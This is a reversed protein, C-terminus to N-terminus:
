RSIKIPPAIAENDAPLADRAGLVSAVARFTVKGVHADDGTFIYSFSFPTTGNKPNMPVFQTLSAFQQFGGPVSRFLQVEVTEDYRKSNVSVVIRRTQGSSAANPTSFRTIAVDHTRVLVTQSTSASRGDPTTVTLQTTYSGDSAYRHTPCCDAGTAGDGFQWDRTSIGLGGPDFSNDFFQIVDFTSPDGPISYFSAVPPPTVELRFEVPTGQGFLGGILFYYTTGAEARFTATGGFVGCGLETLGTLSNGRYAGVVTYIPANGIRGSISQTQTPTFAYWRTNSTGGYPIACSPAPEGAETSASSLDVVESFPLASIVSANAFEDNSVVAGAVWHPGADDIGQNFTLQTADGSGDANMVYIEFDGDRNSQFALQTGDPSWVPDGDSIADNHTVQTVDGSGDANMVFIDGDGGDRDSEFAIKSGDPSWGNAYDNVTNNTLQTTGSGDLNLLFIEFDGDFDNELQLQTGDPSWGTIFQPDAVRVLGTGDANIVYIGDGRGFAIRDGDPSWAGPFGDHFVVRQDSGDANMVVVDCIDVCNGGYLIRNGDPSWLPLLDGATNHTLQIVDSGDANMAFIELDGDRNSHFTIKGAGNAATQSFQPRSGTPAVSRDAESCGALFAALTLLPRLSWPLRVRM